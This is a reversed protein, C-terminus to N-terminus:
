SILTISFQNRPLTNTGGTWLTQSTGSSNTIRFYFSTGATLSVTFSCINGYGSMIVNGNSNNIM